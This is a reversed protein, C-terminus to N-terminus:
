PQVEERQKESRARTESDAAQAELHSNRARRALAERLTVTRIEMTRVQGGRAAIWKLLDVPLEASGNIEATIQNARCQFEGIGRINPAGATFPQELIIEVHNRAGITAMLEPVAGRAEIRGDALLIAHTATRGLWDPDNDAVWTTQGRECRLAIWRTLRELFAADAGASAEDLILLEPDGALAEVISLKRRMGFSYDAVPEDAQNSLDAEDLLEGVRRSLQPETLGCQRAFFYLNQRGTLANWHTPMDLASGCRRRLKLPRPRAAQGLVLLRGESVRDLGAVLRTLTTKGSGNAGLVGLCQGAAVTLFVGDIGRGNHHRRTINEGVIPEVAM